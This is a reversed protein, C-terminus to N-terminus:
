KSNPVEQCSAFRAEPSNLRIKPLFEAEPDTVPYFAKMFFPRLVFGDIEKEFQQLGENLARDDHFVNSLFFKFEELVKNKEILDTGSSPYVWCQV